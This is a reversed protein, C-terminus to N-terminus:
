RRGERHQRLKKRKRSRRRNILVMWLAFLVLAGLVCGVIIRFTKGSLFSTINDVATLTMSREVGVSAVLDLTAYLKGNYYFSAEGLADGKEVPAETDHCNYEIEVDDPDFDAPLYALVDDEPVLMLTDRDKGLKVQVEAIPESSRVMTQISYNEEAFKYLKITNEFQGLIGKESESAGMVVCFYTLDGDTAASALCLGAPTTTGTKIGIANEWRYRSDESGSILTNTNKVTQEDQKNTAPITCKAMSVYSAFTDNKMAELCVKLVDRASTYHDDDHLGHPNTFHTHELGMEAAMNNMLEVFQDMSGGVSIAIANAADNSSAVLLYAMADRFPIKEGVKLYIKSGREYLGDIAENTVTIISEPDGYRLAVLATMVKTLSAPYMFEDANKEALVLDNKSEYLIYAGVDLEPSEVASACMALLMVALILAATKKM